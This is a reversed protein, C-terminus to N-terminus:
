RRDVLAEVIIRENVFRLLDCIRSTVLLLERLTAHDVGAILRGVGLTSGAIRFRDFIGPFDLKRRVDDGFGTRIARTM